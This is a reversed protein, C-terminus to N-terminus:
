YLFSGVGDQQEVSIEGLGMEDSPSVVNVDGFLQQEVSQGLGEWAGEDSDEDAETEDDGLFLQDEQAGYGKTEAKEEAATATAPLEPMASAKAGGFVLHDVVDYIATGALGASLGAGFMGDVYQMTLKGGVIALALKVGSKVYVNQDRVWPIRPIVQDGVLIAGLVGGGAKVMNMIEDKRPILSKIDFAGMDGDELPPLDGYGNMNAMKMDEVGSLTTTGIKRAGALSCLDKYTRLALGHPHSHAPDRLKSSTRHVIGYRTYATASDEYKSCVCANGIGKAVEVCINRGKGM